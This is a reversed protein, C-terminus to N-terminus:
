NLKLTFKNNISKHSIRAKDDYHPFQRGRELGKYIVSILYRFFGNRNKKVVPDNSKLELLKRIWKKCIEKDKDNYIQNILNKVLKLNNHFEEDYIDQPPPQSKPTKTASQAAASAAM